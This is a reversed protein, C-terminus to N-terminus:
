ILLKRSNNYIRQFKSKELRFNKFKEVKWQKFIQNNEQINFGLFKVSYHKVNQSIVFMLIALYGCTQIVVTPNNHTCENVEIWPFKTHANTRM